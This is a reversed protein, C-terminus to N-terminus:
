RKKEKEKALLIDRMQSRVNRSGGLKPGRLIDENRERKIKPRNIPATRRRQRQQIAELFERRFQEAIRDDAAGADDDAALREAAGEGSGSGSPQVDQQPAYVDPATFPTLM